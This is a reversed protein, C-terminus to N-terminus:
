SYHCSMRVDTGLQPRTKRRCEGPTCPRSVGSSRRRVGHAGDQAGSRLLICAILPLFFLAPSVGTRAYRRVLRPFDAAVFEAARRWRVAPPRYLVIHGRHVLDRLRALLSASYDRRQALAYHQCTRRYAAAFDGDDMAPSQPHNARVRSRTSLWAGLASWEPEHRQEFQTQKM